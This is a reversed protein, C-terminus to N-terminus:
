YLAWHAVCIAARTCCDSVVTSWLCLFGVMITKHSKYASMRTVADQGVSNLFDIEFNALFLTLHRPTRSM